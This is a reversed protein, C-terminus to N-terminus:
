QFNSNNLFPILEDNLVDRLALVADIADQVEPRNNTIADEFSVPIDEIEFIALEIADRIEQDLEDNRSAVFIELGPGDFGGFNGLYANQIGRINDAFDKQSNFAFRSEVADIDAPPGFPTALKGSGVEDAITIMGEVWELIAAKQSPYVSSGGTNIFNDQYDGGTSRWATHLATTAAVLDACAGILYEYRRTDGDLEALIEAATDISGGDGFILREIAHFGKVDDAASAFFAANLTASGALIADMDTGNLPWTDMRPDYGATDVPGFLFAESNEWPERAARWAVQAATVNGTTRTGDLDNAADELEEAATQLAAYTATVVDVAYNELMFDANFTQLQPDDEDSSDDPCATLTLCMVTLIAATLTTMLRTRM